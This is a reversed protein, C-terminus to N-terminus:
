ERGATRLCEEIGALQEKEIQAFRLVLSRFEQSINAVDLTHSSNPAILTTQALYARILTDGESLLWRLEDVCVSFHHLEKYLRNVRLNKAMSATHVDQSLQGCRQRNLQINLLSEGICLNAPVAKISAQKPTSIPDKRSAKKSLSKDNLSRLDFERPEAFYSFNQQQQQQQTRALTKGLSASNNLRKRLKDIMM